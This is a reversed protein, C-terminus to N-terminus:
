QKLSSIGNIVINELLLALDNSNEKKEDKLWKKIIGLCGCIAYELFYDYNKKPFRAYIIGWSQIARTKFLNIMKDIFLSDENEKFLITVIDSKKDIFEIIDNFLPLSNKNLQEPSYKSIYSELESVLSNEIQNMLDYIDIYHNYFTGRNINCIECLEKITIQNISKRKLLRIVAEEIMSKSRLVQRNSKM